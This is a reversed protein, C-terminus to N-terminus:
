GSVANPTSSPPEGGRCVPQYAKRLHRKTGLHRSDLLLEDVSKPFEAVSGPSSRLYSDIAKAYQREMWAWDAQRQREAVQSWVRAVSSLGLAVLAVALLVAIYTFGMQRAPHVLM